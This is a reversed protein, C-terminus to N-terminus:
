FNDVLQPILEFQLNNKYIKIIENSLIKFIIFTEFVMEDYTKYGKVYDRLTKYIHRYYEEYKESSFLEYIKNKIMQQKDKNDILLIINQTIKSVSDLITKTEDYSKILKIMPTKNYKIYIDNKYSESKDYDSIIPVVEGIVSNVYLTRNKTLNYSIVENTTKIRYLINGLSLDEHIFGYKHFSEMISYLLQVLIKTVQEISLKNELKSLSGNYKRMIEITILNNGSKECFSSEKDYKKIIKSYDELCSFSCYTRTFNYLSNLKMSLIKIKKNDGKTIKVIVKENEVLKGIMLLGATNLDETLLPKIPNLWKKTPIIYYKTTEDVACKSM